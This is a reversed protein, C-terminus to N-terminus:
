EPAGIGTAAKIYDHFGPVIIATLSGGSVGFTAIRKADLRSDNTVKEYIQNTCRKYDEISSFKCGSLGSEGWGPPDISILAISRALAYKAYTAMHEKIGENGPYALILPFPGDGQPYYVHAFCSGEDYGFEWKEVPPDMRKRFEDFIPTALNFIKKSQKQEYIFFYGMFCYLAAELYMDRVKESQNHESQQALLDAEDKTKKGM